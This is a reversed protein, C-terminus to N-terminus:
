PSLQTRRDTRVARQKPFRTRRTTQTGDEAEGWGLGALWGALWGLSHPPREPKGEDGMRRVELNHGLRGSCQQV